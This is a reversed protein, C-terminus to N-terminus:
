SHAWGRREGDFCSAWCSHLSSRWCARPGDGVAMVTRAGIYGDQGLSPAFHIWPTPRNVTPFTAQTLLSQRTVSWDLILPLALLAATPAAARWLIAGWKKPTIGFLLVPLALLVFPQFAVTAGILWATRTSQTRSSALCAYLLLAVALADEPHGWLVVNYLAHVEAGCLLLRRRTSAGLSVATADVAFLAPASLLVEYPGLLLWGTPRALMFGYSVSMGTVHIIYWAPMLVVVIGPTTGITPQGYIAQYAGVDALHALQLYNWLDMPYQWGRLHDHAPLVWLTTAMYVGLLLFSGALPISHRRVAGLVSTRGLVLCINCPARHDM